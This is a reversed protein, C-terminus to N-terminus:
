NILLQQAILNRKVTGPLNGVGVPVQLNDDNEDYFEPLIDGESICISHLVCCAMIIDCVHKLDHVNVHQLRKFRGKLLGFAREIVVRTCSHLKDYNNQERSLMGVRRYPTLVWEQRPYASDALIHRGECCISGNEWLDSNRFVRADHVSGPWGLYM